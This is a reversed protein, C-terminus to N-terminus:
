KRKLARLIMRHPRLQEPVTQESSERLDRHLNKILLPTAVVGERLYPQLLNTMQAYTKHVAKAELMESFAQVASQEDKFKNLRM